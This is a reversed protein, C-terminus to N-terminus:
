IDVWKLYFNYLIMNIIMLKSEWGDFNWVQISVPELVHKIAVKGTKKIPMPVVSWGRHEAFQWDPKPGIKISTLLSSVFKSKHQMWDVMSESGKWSFLGFWVVWLQFDRWVVKIQM